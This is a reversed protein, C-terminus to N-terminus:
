PLEAIARHHRESDLTLRLEDRESELGPFAELRLISRALELRAAEASHREHEREAKTTTLESEIQSIRGQLTALQANLHTITKCGEEIALTLRDNEKGLDAVEQQYEALEAILRSKAKSFEQEMFDLFTHQVTAPLVPPFTAQRAQSAKWESILRNITGMSGTNGLRERVARSTPSTGTATMTEAILAVQDYTITSERGM